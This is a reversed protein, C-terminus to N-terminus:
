IRSGIVGTAEWQRLRSLLNGPGASLYEQGHLSGGVSESAPWPVEPYDIPRYSRWPGRLQTYRSIGELLGRDFGAYPVMLLVVRPTEAMCQKM